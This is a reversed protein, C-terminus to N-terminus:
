LTDFIWRTATRPFDTELWAMVLKPTMRFMGALEQATPKYSVYKAGYLAAVRELLAMDHIRAATGEMIVVEDGSELHVSVQGTRDLNRAKSSTDGSGFYLAGELWVGWVPAAHPRGDARTTCIWYNRSKEMRTDVWEWHMLGEPQTSIGYNTMGPRTRRAGPPAEIVGTFRSDKEDSM